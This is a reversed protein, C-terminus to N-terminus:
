GSPTHISEISDSLEPADLVSARKRFERVYSVHRASQLGAGDRAASEALSAAEGAEGAMLAAHAAVFHIFSRTRRPTTPTIALATFRRAEAPQGLDKFAHAIDGALEAEDYYGIWAPEDSASRGFLSEAHGITAIAQRADGLVALARAEMMVCMTEVTKTGRGRLAAQAARAFTLARQPRGLFTYQHSLNALLRSGMLHDGAEEALRLGLVFYRAALSHQGEDYATWGLLQIVEAAASSVERHRPKGRSARLEPVVQSRFFATLAHRVHGGGLAFDLDMLEAARARLRDAIPHVTGACHVDSDLVSFSRTFLYGAIVQDDEVLALGADPYDKSPQGRGGSLGEMLDVASPLDHVYTGSRVFLDDVDELQLVTTLLRRYFADPVTRNNEWRSLATKLSRETMIGIGQHNACEVLAQILRGYSWQRSRRAARIEDGFAM